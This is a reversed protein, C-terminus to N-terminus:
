FEYTQTRHKNDNYHSLVLDITKSFCYININILLILVGTLIPSIQPSLEEFLVKIAIYSDETPTITM